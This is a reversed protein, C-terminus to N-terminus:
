LSPKSKLVVLHQNKHISYHKVAYQLDAKNEFQLGEYLENSENWLGSHSTLTEVSM